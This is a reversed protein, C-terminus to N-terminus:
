EVGLLDSGWLQPVFETATVNAENPINERSGSGTTFTPLCGTFGATPLGSGSSM